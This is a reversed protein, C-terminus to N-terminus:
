PLVEQIRSRVGLVSAGDANKSVGAIVAPSAAGNARCCTAGQSAAIM